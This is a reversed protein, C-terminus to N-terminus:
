RDPDQNELLRVAFELQQEESLFSNDLVVADPAKLLPSEERHTDEYDRASVNTRVEDVTINIGKAKLENFRRRVRIEPDATMFLKLEADPFVVTGIDRGDLIVGKGKGMEKQLEVMRKRVEKVASVRSVLAAVPMSRIEKEVNEGNLHIESTEKGPTMRFSLDIDRLTSAILSASALIKEAGLRLLYLTVARYMAGTDIYKYGLKKALAKALTSKGCSSYGDVAITIKKM